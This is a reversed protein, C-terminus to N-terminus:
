ENRYRKLYFQELKETTSQIDYGAEQIIVLNNKREKLKTHSEIVKIWAEMDDLSLFQIKETLAVDSPVNTSCVVPLDAAEAEITVIGLGEYLSPFLFIDMAQLIENVDERMGLFLVDEQLKKEKVLAQINEKLEGEGILLLVFQKSKLNVQEFLDILFTHNKQPHFRGIHGIVIKDEIKLEKRVRKRITEDYIYKKAEIANPLVEFKKGKVIREGFLWEGATISCAFFYDAIYRLPFQLVDKVIASIGKGSSVNHSHVVTYRQHRKAIALYISATSRMHGHVIQHELHNHFFEKWAKIYQLTNVGRYKPFSYIKGGMGLVEGEYDCHKETHVVFDFQVKEKNINRYLNMIMTEAGGRDLAGLVHLVRIPEMTRVEM